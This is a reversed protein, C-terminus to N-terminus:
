RNQNLLLVSQHVFSNKLRNKKFTPVRFRRRSPLLQYEGNLVHLPDSSISNALRLMSKTHAEKFAHLVVDVSRGTIKACIKILSFLKNKYTVSLSNFWATSCYLMVTQVVSTYFLSLIQSSAGFSRLRRLSYIRQQVRKCIYDIQHSWSLTNDIMVGLYKYSPVQVIDVGHITVPTTVGGPARGFIIEETKKTNIILHRNDCWDVLRDVSCQYQRPDDSVTMLAILTSDDSYKLLFQNPECTNYDATYLTFLVPSSICGQPAGVRTRIPSSLTKNVKVYQIRNTLFTHYFQIVFPNIQLQVMKTLLLDPQITNFASSFDIFLGRAYSNPKDLHKSILHM